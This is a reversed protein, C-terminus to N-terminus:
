NVPRLKRLKLEWKRTKKTAGDKILLRFKWHDLKRKRKRKERSLGSFEPRSFTWWPWALSAQPEAKRNFSLSFPLSLHFSAEGRDSERIKRRAQHRWRSKIVELELWPWCSRSTARKEEASFPLPLSLHFSAEGRSSEWIKLRTSVDVTLPRLSLWPWYCNKM